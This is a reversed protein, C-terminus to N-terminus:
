SNRHPFARAVALLADNDEADGISIRVGEPAFARLAIGAAQCAAAFGATHDGLRLWVFNAETPPVEWGEAILAERSEVSALREAVEEMAAEHSHLASTRAEAIVAAAQQNADTLAQSVQPVAAPSTTRSRTGVVLAVIGSAALLAAIVILVIAYSM